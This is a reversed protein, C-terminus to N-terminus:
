KLENVFDLIEFRLALNLVFIHLCTLSICLLPRPRYSNEIFCGWTPMSLLVLGAHLYLISNRDPFPLLLFKQIVHTPLVSFLSFLLCFFGLGTLYSAPPYHCHIQANWCRPIEPKSPISSIYNKHNGHIGTHSPKAAHRSEELLDTFRIHWGANVQETWCICLSVCACSLIIFM